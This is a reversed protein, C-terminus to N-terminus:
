ATERLGHVSKTALKGATLPQWTTEADEEVKYYHLARVSTQKGHHVRQESACTKSLGLSHPNQTAATGQLTQRLRLAVPILAVAAAFRPSRREGRVNM